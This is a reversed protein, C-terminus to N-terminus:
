EEWGKLENATALLAETGEILKRRDAPDMQDMTHELLRDSLVREADALVQEGERSLWVLTRRRDREDAHRELIGRTELRQVIESMASQSREFHAAAETVTMPGISALHRLIALSERSPAYAEPRQRRHFRHYVAPFLRAFQETAQQADM